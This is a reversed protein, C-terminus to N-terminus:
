HIGGVSRRGGWSSGNKRRKGQQQLRFYVERRKSRKEGAMELLSSSRLMRGGPDRGVDRGSRAKRGKKRYLLKWLSRRSEKGALALSSGQPSANKVVNRGPESECTSQEESVRGGDRTLRSARSGERDSLWRRKWKRGRSLEVVRHGRECKTVIRRAKLSTGVPRFRETKESCTKSRSQDQRSV